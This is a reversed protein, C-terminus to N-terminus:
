KTRRDYFIRSVYNKAADLIRPEVQKGLLNGKVIEYSNMLQSDTSPGTFELKTISTEVDRVQQTLHRASVQSDPEGCANEICKLLAIIMYDRDSNCPNKVFRRTQWRYFRVSRNMPDAIGVEDSWRVFKGRVSHNMDAIPHKMRSIIHAYLFAPTESERKSIDGLDVLKKQAIALRGYDVSYILGCIVHRPELSITETYGSNFRVLITPLDTTRLPYFDHNAKLFKEADDILKPSLNTVGNLWFYISSSKKVLVNYFDVVTKGKATTKWGKGEKVVLGFRDLSNLNSAIVKSSPLGHKWGYLRRITRFYNEIDSFSAPSSDIYRLLSLMYPSSGLAKLLRRKDLDESV